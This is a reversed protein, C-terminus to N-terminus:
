AELSYPIGVNGPLDSRFTGNHYLSPAHNYEIIYLSPSSKGNTADSMTRTGNGALLFCRSANSEPFAEAGIYFRM